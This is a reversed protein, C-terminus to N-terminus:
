SQGSSLLRIDGISCTDIDLSSASSLCFKPGSLGSELRSPSRKRNTILFRLKANSIPPKMALIGSNAAALALYILDTQSPSMLSEFSMKSCIM